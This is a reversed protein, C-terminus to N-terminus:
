FVCPLTKQTPFEGHFSIESSKILSIAKQIHEEPLVSFTKMTGDLPLTLQTASLCLKKIGLPRVAKNLSFNGHKDDAVLPAKANALQIRIQHMRGTGLRVKISSLQVNEGSPLVIYGSKQVSFFLKAEQERQHAFITDFLTGEKLPKGNKQPLGFCVATYEKKVEKTAILATWKSAAQSSKAVILLGSTDKDLRHVLHVKYGMQKSLEEDLPHLIGKGGQVSVGSPKNILLIENNEFLVSFATM